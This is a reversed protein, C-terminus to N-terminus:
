AVREVYFLPNILPSDQPLQINEILRPRLKLDPDELEAMAEVDTMLREYFARLQLQDPEGQRIPGAYRSGVVQQGQRTKIIARRCHDIMPMGERCQLPKYFANQGFRQKCDQDYAQFDQPRLYESGAGLSVGGIRTSCRKSYSRKYNNRNQTVRQLYENIMQQQVGSPPANQLPADDDNFEIGSGEDEQNGQQPAPVDAPLVNELGPLVNPANDEVAQNIIDAININEQPQIDLVPQNNEEYIQLINDLLDGVIEQVADNLQSERPISPLFTNQIQPSMPIRRYLQQVMAIRDYYPHYKDPIRTEMLIAYVANRINTESNIDRTQLTEGDLIVDRVTEFFDSTIYRTRNIAGLIASAVITIQSTDTPVPVNERVDDDSDDGLRIGEDDDVAPVLPPTAAAPPPQDPPNEERLITNVERFVANTWTHPEGFTQIIDNRFEEWEEKPVNRRRFINRLRELNKKRTKAIETTSPGAPPISPPNYPNYERGSRTSRFSPGGEM